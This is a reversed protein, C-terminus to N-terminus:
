LGFYNNSIGSGLGFSISQLKEEVRAPLATKNAETMSMFELGYFFYGKGEKAGRAWAIRALPPIFDKERSDEALMTVVSREEPAILTKTELLAGSVSINRLIGRGQLGKQDIYWRVPMDDRVRPHKRLDEDNAM